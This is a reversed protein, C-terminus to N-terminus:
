GRAALANVIKEELAEASIVWGQELHRYKEPIEPGLPTLKDNEELYWMQVTGNRDPMGYLYKPYKFKTPPTNGVIHWRGSRVPPNIGCLLPPLLPVMDGIEVYSLPETVVKDFVQVFPGRKPDAHVYQAYIYRNEPLHIEFIDGVRPLRVRKKLKPPTTLQKLLHDYEHQREFLLRGSRERWRELGAGNRIDDMAKAIIDHERVGNDHLMKALALRLVISDDEDFDSSSLIKEAVVVPSKGATVLEDFELQADVAIDNDMIGTGWTGM